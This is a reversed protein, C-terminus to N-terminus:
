PPPSIFPPDDTSLAGRRLFVKPATSETSLDASKEVVVRRSKGEPIETTWRNGRVIFFLVAQIFIVM